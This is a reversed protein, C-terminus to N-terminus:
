RDCIEIKIVQSHSRERMCTSAGSYNNNHLVMVAGYIYIVVFSLLRGRLKEPSIEAVYIPAVQM